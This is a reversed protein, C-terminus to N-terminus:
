VSTQIVPAEAEVRHVDPGADIMPEPWVWGTIRGAVPTNTDQVKWGGDHASWLVPILERELGRSNNIEALVVRDKPLPRM